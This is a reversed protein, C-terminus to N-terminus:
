PGTLARLLDGILLGYAEAPSQEVNVNITQSPDPIYRGLYSWGKQQGITQLRLVEADWKRVAAPGTILEFLAAIGGVVIFGVGLAVAVEPGDYPELQSALWLLAVGGVGGLVLELVVRGVYSQAQKLSSLALYLANSWQQELSLGQGGSQQQQQQQQMVIIPQSGSPTPTTTPAVQLTGTSSTSTGYDIRQIEAVSYTWNGSPTSITVNSTTQGVIAGTVQTGNKFYITDALIPQAVVL